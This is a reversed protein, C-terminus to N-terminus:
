AFIQGMWRAELAIEASQYDSSYGLRETVRLSEAANRHMKNQAATQPREPKM